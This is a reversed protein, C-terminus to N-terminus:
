EKTKLARIDIACGAAECDFVSSGDSLVANSMRSECELAARELIANYFFELRSKHLEHAEEAGVDENFLLGAERAMKLLEDREIM